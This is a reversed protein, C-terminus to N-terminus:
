ILAQIVALLRSASAEAQAVGPRCPANRKRYVKQVSWPFNVEESMELGLMASREVSLGAYKRLRSSEHSFNLSRTSSSASSSLLGRSSRTLNRLMVADFRSSNKSTRREPRNYRM